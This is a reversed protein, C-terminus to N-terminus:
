LPFYTVAFDIMEKIAPLNVVALAVVSGLSVVPLLFKVQLKDEIVEVLQFLLVFFAWGFYLAYLILGNEATGWGFLCLMVVSFGVWGIALLSSKKKRNIVASVIVLLLIVVGTISINTAPVLQWSVHEMTTFDVGAQPALFCNRIFAIYQFVKEVLSVKKGTFQVLWSIKSIVGFIVDFRCLALMVIMFEFGADIVNVIWKKFNMESLEQKRIPALILSTLLTGGAGWFAIRDSSIKKCILYLLLILWFYAVIYQEMMLVFLLYTYCFCSSIMFCIRKSSSLGMMRCLIFNSILLLTVQVYDLLLAYVAMPDTFLRSVLYSIGMFPASFVAFLPQRLDNETNALILYADNKVLMPSDSTYIIDFSLKTGYFADTKRFVITIFLMTACLLFIYVVKERTKVDELIKTNRALDYLKNWFFALTVYVFPISIIAIIWVISQLDSIHVISEINKLRTSQIWINCGRWCIGVANLIAITRLLGNINKVHKWISKVQFAIISSLIFAVPIGLCYQLSYAELIFFAVASIPFYWNRKLHLFNQNDKQLNLETKVIECFKRTIKQSLLFFAYAAGVCGVVGIIMLLMNKSMHLNVAVTALKSSVKWTKYFNYFAAIEFTLMLLINEWGLVTSQVTPTIQDKVLLCMAAVLLFIIAFALLAVFSPTFFLGLAFMTSILLLLSEQFRDKLIMRTDINNM